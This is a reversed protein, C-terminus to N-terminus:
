QSLNTQNKYLKRLKGKKEVNTSVNVAISQVIVKLNSLFQQKKVVSPVLLQSCKVLVAIVAAESIEVAVAVVAAWVLLKTSLVVRQVALQHTILAKPHTSSKNPHLLSLNKVVIV